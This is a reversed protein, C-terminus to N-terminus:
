GEGRLIALIRDARARVSAKEDESLMAYPTDMQRIWRDRDERAWWLGFRKNTYDIKIAKKEWHRMWESWVEHAYDALRERIGADTINDELDGFEEAVQGQPDRVLITLRGDPQREVTCTYESAARAPQVPACTNAEDQKARIQAVDLMFGLLRGHEGQACTNADGDLDSPGLPFDREKESAVFDRTSAEFAARQEATLVGPGKVHVRAGGAKFFDYIQTALPPAVSRLGVDITVKGAEEDVVPEGVHFGPDPARAHAAGACAMCLVEVVRADGVGRVREVMDGM